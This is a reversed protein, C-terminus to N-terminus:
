DNIIQRLVDKFYKCLMDFDINERNHNVDEDVYQYERSDENSIIRIIKVNNHLEFEKLLRTEDQQSFPFIIMTLSPNSLARKTISLIHEDAFSFGFCFLVSNPRELENAYLRSLDYYTHEMLTRIFKQKTPLIIPVNKQWKLYGTNEIDEDEVKNLQIQNRIYISEKDLFWNISGHLKIINFVPAEYQYSYSDSMQYIRKQFNNTLFQRTLFGAGGDNYNFKLEESAVELFLDYNTTFINIKRPLHDSARELIIKHLISLFDKYRKLVEEIHEPRLDNGLLANNPVLSEEIFSNIKEIILEKSTTDQMEKYVKILETLDQEINGLIEVAGHSAGAGILFHLNGSEIYRKMDHTLNSGM